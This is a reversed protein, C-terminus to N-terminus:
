QTMGAFAPIWNKKKYNLFVMSKFVIWRIKIVLNKAASLIVTLSLDFVDNQVYRLSTFFRTKWNKSGSDRQAPDPHCDHLDAMYVKAVAMPPVNQQFSM